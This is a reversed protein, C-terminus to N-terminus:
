DKGPQGHVHRSDYGLHDDIIGYVRERIVKLAEPSIIKDPSIESIEKKAQQVKESTRERIYKDAALVVTTCNKMSAALDRIEKSDLEQNNVMFHLQLATLMEAAAKQTASAEVGDVNEMIDRAIVGADKMQAIVRLKRAYRGVADVSIREGKQQVYNAMHAYQPKGIKQGKYDDPWTNDVIMLTVASKVKKPLLDITSHSRRGGSDTYKNRPKTMNNEAM